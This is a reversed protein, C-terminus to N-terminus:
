TKEAIANAVPGFHSNYHGGALGAHRPAREALLLNAILQAARGPQTFLAMHRGDIKAVQTHPAIARVEELCTRPITEDRTSALYLVKARCDALLPRVDVALAARARAALVRANVRRWTRGKANRLEDTAFGPILFRLRRLARITAVVPTRLAMRYPVLGARPPTVFSACLIIARVQSPRRAAVMLALPGGFSWGLIAIEGLSEVAREVVPVLDEYTNPGTTPYSVVVPNIWSPLRSLLPAFFIETGDLGPLLVLNFKTV